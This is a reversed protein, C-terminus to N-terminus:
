GQVVLSEKWDERPLAHKQLKGTKRNESSLCKSSKCQLLIFFVTVWTDCNLYGIKKVGRVHKQRYCCFINKKQSVTIDIPGDGFTIRLLRLFLDLPQGGVQWTEEWARQGQLVSRWSFLQPRRAGQPDPRLLRVGQSPISGCCPPICSQPHSM